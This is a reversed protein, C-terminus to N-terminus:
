RRGLLALMRGTKGKEVRYSYFSTLCRSTCQGDDHVQSEPVGAAVADRRIWEAFDVEYAPPRICPSLQVQMRKPDAGHERVMMEIARRVIGAESGRRGSHVLGLSGAMADVLYVACCDAVYIGLARGRVNSILGDVGQFAHGVPTDAEVIGIRDGHVQEATVLSAEAFGLERVHRDHVPRLRAIVEEREGTVEVGTQRLVFRHAYDAPLGRLAEFDMWDMDNM